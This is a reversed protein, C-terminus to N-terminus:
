SFRIVFLERELSLMFLSPTTITPRRSSGGLVRINEVSGALTNTLLFGDFLIDHLLTHQVLM